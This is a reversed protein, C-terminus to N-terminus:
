NCGVEWHQLGGFDKMDVKTVNYVDGYKLNIFEFTKDPEVVEGKVVFTRNGPHLTWIESKDETPWFDVSNVYKKDKGTVGDTAKVGFPIYLNVADATDLGSTRVNVAKSADFLVGKLITIYHAFSESGTVKDFVSETNYLTVTHPFMSM